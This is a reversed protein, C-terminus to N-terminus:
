EINQIQERIKEIESKVDVVENGISIDNAKSGITNIERNMEQVIFDLQRGLPAEEEDIMKSLRSTHSKLRTLEESIDLKDAMVAVETLIRNEDISADALYAQVKERINHKYTELMGPASEEIKGVMTQIAACRERIDDHMAKGDRIRSETVQKLAENLVPKLLQWRAEDDGAMEEVSVVDPFRAVMDVSVEDAIMSDMTKIRNLITLYSAALDKNLVIQKNQATLENFRIYIEIRGRALVQGATKRIREELPNLMRPIKIFFDRYRHNITKIEVSIDVDKNRYDQRGFGTMSKM